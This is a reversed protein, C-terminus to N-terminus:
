RRLFFDDVDDLTKLIENESVGAQRAQEASKRLGSDIRKTAKGATTTIAKVASSGSSGSSRHEATKSIIHNMLDANAKMQKAALDQYHKQEANVKAMKYASYGILATGGVLAATRLGKKIKANRAAKEQDGSTSKTTKGAKISGKSSSGKRAVSTYSNGGGKRGFYRALGAATYTGDANQYNREGWKMGKVGFHALYNTDLSLSWSYNNVVM